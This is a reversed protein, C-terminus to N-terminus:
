KIAVEEHKVKEGTRVMEILEENVKAKEGIEEPRTVVLNKKLYYKSTNIMLSEDEILEM